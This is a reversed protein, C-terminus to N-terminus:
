GLRGTCAADFIEAAFTANIPIPNTGASPDDVAAAAISDIATPDVGLDVLTHPVDMASRM